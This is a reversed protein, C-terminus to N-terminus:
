TGGVAKLEMTPTKTGLLTSTIGYYRLNTWISGLNM